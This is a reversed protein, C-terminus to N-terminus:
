HVKEAPLPGQPVSLQKGGKASANRDNGSAKGKQGTQKPTTTAEIHQGKKCANKSLASAKGM